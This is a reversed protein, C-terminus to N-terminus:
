NQDILLEALEEGLHEVLLDRYRESNIYGDEHEFFATVVETWDNELPYIVGFQESAEDGAPHRTVNVGQEAARWYNYIDVYALYRNVEATRDIIEQNSHAYHIESEPLYSEKIDRLREEHLTGEFALIDLGEFRYPLESMEQVPEVDSHTILTAINTLYPPSFGLEEKRSETITVNAVGFVGPDADKVYEYFGTFSEIPKFRIDINLDYERNVFGIFDRFLEITVGTLEGNENIYSFGESPVYALEAVGAGSELVSEFSGPEDNDTQDSGNCGLLVITLVCLFLRGFVKM